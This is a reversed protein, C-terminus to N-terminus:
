DNMAELVGMLTMKVEYIVYGNTVIGLKRWLTPGFFGSLYSQSIVDLTLNVQGLQEHRQLLDVRKARFPMVIASLPITRCKQEVMTTNVLSTYQRSFIVM